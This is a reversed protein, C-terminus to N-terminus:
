AKAKRSAGDIPLREQLEEDDMDREDLLENSHVSRFQVVNRKYDWVERAEVELDTEGTDIAKILEARRKKLPKMRESFAANAAQKESLVGDIEKDRDFLEVYCQKIEQPSLRKKQTTTITDGDAM